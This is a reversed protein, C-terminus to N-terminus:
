FRVKTTENIWGGVKYSAGEQISNMFAVEKNPFYKKYNSAKKTADISCDEGRRARKYYDVAVWFVTAKEFNDDSFSRSAAVYIDGILMLAECYNPNIALAKRAYDRAESYANEKAYIFLAYEYYYTSLLEQDTEQEMAQKYYAKAKEFEKLKLYRHAMNFAAEASPDLKYLRETANEYLKSDDCKAKRLRRLMNKTFEIDNSNKEFQPTFISILAECDAAGSKGFIDEIYTQVKKAKGVLDTDSNKDIITNVISSCKEYNAVISEKPLVGLKFLSRSTQMLLVLVPLESEDGQEEVSEKLWDYGSKLAKIQAEGELNGEELKYKLWTTGKRGLVYGKNGFYKIRKEYLKVFDNLIKDKEVETNANEIFHNFMKAGQIYINITSKPYKEYLIKWHPLASKYDKQKYFENYLSYETKFDNNDLLDAASQLNVVGSEENGGAIPIKGTFAYDFTDGSKGEIILKKTEDIFTFKIYKTKADAKIEYKGDFSTMMSGGKHAEVTVGAAPKEDMYVTGKIVRQAFPASVIGMFSMIFLVSIRLFAKM